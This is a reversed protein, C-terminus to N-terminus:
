TFLFNSFKKIARNNLAHLDALGLVRLVDFIIKEVLDIVQFIAFLNGAM